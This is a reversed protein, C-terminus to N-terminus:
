KKTDRDSKFTGMCVDIPLRRHDSWAGTCRARSLKGQDCLPKEQCNFSLRSLSEGQTALILSAM